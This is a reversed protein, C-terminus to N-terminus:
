IEKRSKLTSHMWQLKWVGKVKILGVSELWQIELTKGNSKITATNWYHLTSQRYNIRSNIFDFKNTRKFDSPVPSSLRKVLTDTNWQEGNELLLFDKTCHSAMKDFDRTSLAEFFDRVINQTITTSVKNQSHVLVGLSLFVMLFLTNFKM